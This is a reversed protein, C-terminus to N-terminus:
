EEKKPPVGNWRRIHLPGVTIRWAFVAGRHAGHTPYPGLSAFRSNCWGIWIVQCGAITAHM